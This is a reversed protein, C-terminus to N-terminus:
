VTEFDVVYVELNDDWFGYVRKFEDIYSQVTYGGEKRADQPSIDGLLEQYVEKIQLEAFYYATYDTKAQHISGEKARPTKWTRRTHEKLGTLIPFVFHKKFLIM